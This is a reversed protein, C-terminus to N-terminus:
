VVCFSSNYMTYMYLRKVESEVLTLSERQQRHVHLYQHTECEVLKLPCQVLAQQSSFPGHM